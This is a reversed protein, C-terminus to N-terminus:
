PQLGPIRGVAKGVVSLTRNAEDLKDQMKGLKENAEHLEANTVALQQNVVALQENAKDLRSTLPGLCGALVLPAAGLLFLRCMRVEAQTM